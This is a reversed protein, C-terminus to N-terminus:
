LQRSKQTTIIAVAAVIIAALAACAEAPTEIRM